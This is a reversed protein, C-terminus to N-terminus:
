EKINKRICQLLEEVSVPKAIFPHGAILGSLNGMERDNVLATLFVIPIKETKPLAQLEQAVAGGDMEPMIVDCFILDPVFEQAQAIGEKGSYVAKVEYEGSEDLNLKVLDIFTKEDDIFLIKKKAM